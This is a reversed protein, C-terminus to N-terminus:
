KRPTGAGAVVSEVRKDLRDMRITFLKVESEARVRNEPEVELLGPLLSRLPSLVGRADEVAAHVQAVASGSAATNSGGEEAAAAAAVSAQEEALAVLAEATSLASALEKASETLEVEEEVANAAATEAEPVDEPSLGKKNAAELLRQNRKREEEQAHKRLLEQKAAVETPPLVVLKQGAKDQKPVFDAPPPVVHPTAGTTQARPVASASLPSRLPLSIIAGARPQTGATLARMVPVVPARLPPLTHLIRKLPLALPTTTVVSLAPRKIGPPRHSVVLTPDVAGDYPVKWGAAPPLRADLSGSHHAWVADGGIKPALWWGHLTPGDRDDWFYIFVDLGNVPTLRRWSTKGHNEGNPVYDGRISGKVLDSVCGSVTIIGKELVPVSPGLRPLSVVPGGHGRGGHGACSGVDGPLLRRTEDPRGLTSQGPGPQPPLTQQPHQPHPLPHPQQPHPPQQAPPHHAARPDSYYPHQAPPPYQESYQPPYQPPYQSPPYEAYQAQPPPCHYGQPPPYNYGYCPGPAHPDHPYAPPPYNTAQTHPDHPYSPPPYSSAPPAHPDHQQAPPPYVSHPYQPPPAGNPPPQQPPYSGSGGQQPPPQQYPPPYHSPYPYQQPHAPPQQQPSPQTPGQPLGQPLQQSAQQPPQQPLSQQPPIQQPPGQQPPPYPAHQVPPQQPGPAPPQGYVPPPTGYAPYPPTSQHSYGCQPDSSPPAVRM